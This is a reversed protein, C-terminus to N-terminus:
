FPTTKDHKLSKCVETQTQRGIDEASAMFALSLRDNIHDVGRNLALREPNSM